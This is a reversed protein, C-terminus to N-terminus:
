NGCKKSKVEVQGFLNSFIQSLFPLTFLKITNIAKVAPSPKSQNSIINRIKFPKILFNGFM